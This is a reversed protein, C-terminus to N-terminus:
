RGIMDLLDVLREGARSQQALTNRCAVEIAGFRGPDLRAVAPLSRFYKGAAKDGVEIALDIGPGICQQAKV